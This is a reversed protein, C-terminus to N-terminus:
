KKTKKSQKKADKKINTKNHKQKRTISGGVGYYSALKPQLKSKINARTPISPLSINTNVRTNRKQLRKDEFGKQFGEYIPYLLTYIIEPIKIINTIIADM